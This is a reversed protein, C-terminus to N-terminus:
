ASKRQWNGRKESHAMVRNRGGAKARYLASDARDAAESISDGADIECIGISLKPRIVKGDAGDIEINKETLTRRVAEAVITLPHDAIDGVMLILEDGGWRGCVDNSRALEQLRHAIEIVVQDGAMHGFSDNITKFDDIDILLLAMRTGAAANARIEDYRAVFGRRNAIGTMQDRDALQQLEITRAAVQRELQNTHGQVANAMVAFVRSLRGIEDNGTDIAGAEFSGNAFSGIWRELRALRDIVHRRFLWTVVLTALLMFGGLLLGIPVFLSRDIIQDIEMITVNYWGLGDLYGVGVMVERGDMHLFRSRVEVADTTVEELMQRMAARDEDTDLLAYITKRDAISKTLSHFDVQAPDRHAQVAGSSDVFMATVGTQPVDVVQHVFSTLDLGTGVVGLVRKGERVVCNMWVKTVSLVDDHDVNLHCGDGLAVTNYYWADRPNERNLTYSYQNGAHSNAADNFYYNGSKDVVFFYSHDTFVSRFHELEAIGRKARDPNTEDVAWDRIAQSGALTEALTVEQQLAGLGRYRDFLIQKEAFLGGLRVVTENVISTFALYAPVSVIAFACLTLVLMRLRLSRWAPLRKNSIAM